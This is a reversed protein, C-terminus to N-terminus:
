RSFCSEARRRKAGVAAREARELECSKAADAFDQQQAALVALNNYLLARGDRLSADQESRDPVPPTGIHFNFGM